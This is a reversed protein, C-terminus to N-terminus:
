EPWPDFPEESGSSAKFVRQLRGDEKSVICPLTLCRLAARVRGLTECKSLEKAKFTQCEAVNRYGLGTATSSSDDICGLFNTFGLLEYKDTTASQRTKLSTKLAALDSEAGSLDGSFAKSEMSKLSDSESSTLVSTPAKGYTYPWVIQSCSYMNTIYDKTAERLPIGLDVQTTNRGLVAFGSGGRAVYNNTALRYNRTCSIPLGCRKKGSQQPDPHTQGTCIEGSSCDSDSSCASGSGGITVHQACQDGDYNRRICENGGNGACGACNLTATVGAVQAQAQCGRSASRQAVFDMTEQVEYGSLYMVTIANDFPFVNTMLEEDVPGAVLDTRIGLTNTLAFDAWVQSRNIMADTVLNGVASDGGGTSFRKLKQPTFGIVQSLLQQRNLELMYPELLKVMVPDDPITKDIPVLTYKYSAVEWDNKGTEDGICRRAVKELCNGSADKELCVEQEELRLCQRATIALKGLYKLFAGSHVLLVDRPACGRRQLEAIDKELQTRRAAYGYTQEERACEKAVEDTCSQVCAAKDTATACTDRSECEKQAQKVKESTNCDYKDKERKLKAIDCDQIVDPPSLVIHLHGGFVIDVGETRPIFDQDDFYGLHTAVVVLDVQPRLLDVYQQIVEKSRLPFIGSSQLVWPDGIGIIGVRLGKLNLVVYPAAIKGVQTKQTDILYNASLTPFNADKQVEAILTAQGNDFDHNGITYADLGLQTLSKFEPEGKFVNFIPAGQVVDGTEIYALRENNTKEQRVITSLRAMGGFPANAQLLGLNIDNQGVTMDYPILRSHIDSTHLFVVEVDQGDLNISDPRLLCGAPGLPLLLLAAAAAITSSFRMSTNHAITHM